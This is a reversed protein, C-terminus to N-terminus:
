MTEPKGLLQLFLSAHVLLGKHPFDINSLQVSRNVQGSKGDLRQFFQQCLGLHYLKPFVSFKPFIGLYTVLALSM